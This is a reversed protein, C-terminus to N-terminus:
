RIVIPLYLDNQENSLPPGVSVDYYGTAANNDSHSLEIYFPQRATADLWTFFYATATPSVSFDGLVTVGNAALIRIRPQMGLALNSVRVTLRGTELPMVKFVDLDGPRDIRGPLDENNPVLLTATYPTDGHDDSQVGSVTITTVATVTFNEGVPEFTPTFTEGNPGIAPAASLQTFFAEGSENDFTVTVTYTGNQQYPLYGSYFGDDALADPPLGDDLLSLSFTDGAPPEATAALTAQAIPDSQSVSAVLVMPQPYTIEPGLLSNVAARFPFNVLTETTTVTPEVWVINLAGRTVDTPTTPLELSADAGPVPTIPVLEPYFTRVPLALRAGDRPDESVLRALTEWGSAAYARRQATEGITNKAVSFNLWNFNGGLANWQSNMVSNHVPSDDPRPFIIIHCHEDCSSAYEDYLGYYYHGWEHALTYGAGRRNDASLANYGAGGFSFIDGMWIQWGPQGYGAVHARPWERANWQVDATTVSQGNQHVTINGILHTGNSMEYVADAFFGFIQEYAIREQTSVSRYLSISLDIPITTSLVGRDRVFIDTAGNTDGPVLNSADSQFTVYRGDASISPFVSSGNGQTNDSAVSVRSTQRTQQDHIFVDRVSNTDPPAVNTADSSFVVYRGDSSIFPWWSADNGQAGNSAVSVRNTEGTQRDHIFIDRRDNTDGPVLNNAGSAFTVYRGNASISPSASDGNGQRGDSAVSVRTTTGTLRDYVFADFIGNTDGPVLNDAYSSFAVYRGDASISPAVSEGNGQTCDSAVSIRSTQQTQRDHVFIDWASNTDGTVLNYARSDFAVYRGDASISPFRSIGGGQAGNSAVSVRSTQGTQRDHVFVDPCSGPSTFIPSCTNTDDPVLNSAESAFAVYRGDASISPDYSNWNGQTGDSAVSVRSTQGTQSDYVFVDSWGNTDGPVLNSTESHFAVYRGDSSISPQESRGNGQTGDSAVSIRITIANSLAAQSVVCAGSDITCVSATANAPPLSCNVLFIIGLILLLTLLPRIRNSLVAM